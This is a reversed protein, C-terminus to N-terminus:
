ATAAAAGAGLYDAVNPTVIVAEDTTLARCPRTSSGCRGATPICPASTNYYALVVNAGLEKGYPYELLDDDGILWAPTSGEYPIIWTGSDQLAIGTLGAHGPPIRFEARWLWCYALNVATTLYATAATNPACSPAVWATYETQGSATGPGSM